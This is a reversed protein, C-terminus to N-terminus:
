SHNRRVNLSKRQFDIWRFYFMRTKLEMSFFPSIANSTYLYCFSKSIIHIFFSAAVIIWGMGGDIGPIPEFEDEDDIGNNLKRKSPGGHAM